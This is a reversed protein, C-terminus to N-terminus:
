INKHMPTIVATVVKAGEALAGMLCAHIDGRLRMGDGMQKTVGGVLVLLLAKKVDEHGWIEPAISRALRTYIDEEDELAQPLGCHVTLGNCLRKCCSSLACEQVQQFIPCPRM